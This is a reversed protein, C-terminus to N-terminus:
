GGRSVINLFYAHFKLTASHKVFAGQLALVGIKKSINM